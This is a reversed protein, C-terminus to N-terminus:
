CVAPSQLYLSSFSGVCEGQVRGTETQDGLDGGNQNAASSAGSLPSLWDPKLRESTLVTQQVGTRVEQTSSCLGAEEEPLDDLSKLPQPPSPRLERLPPALDASANDEERLPPAPLPVKTAPPPSDPPDLNPPERKTSPPPSDPPAARETAPPPPPPGTPAVLKRIPPSSHPPTTPRELNKITRGAPLIRPKPLLPPKSRPRQNEESTERPSPPKPSSPPPTQPHNLSANTTSRLRSGSQSTTRTRPRM